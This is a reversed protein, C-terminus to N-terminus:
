SMLTKLLSRILGKVTVSRFTVTRNMFTNSELSVCVLIDTCFLNAKPGSPVSVPEALQIHGSELLNQLLNTKVDDVSIISLSKFAKHKKIGLQKLLRRLRGKIKAGPQLMLIYSEPIVNAPDVETNILKRHFNEPLALASYVLLGLLAISKMSFLRGMTMIEFRQSENKHSNGNVSFKPLQFSLHNQKALPPKSYPDHTLGRQNSTESNLPQSTMFFTMVVFRM